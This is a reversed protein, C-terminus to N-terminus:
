ARAEVEYAISLFAAAGRLGAEDTVIVYIPISKMYETMRGKSDFGKRFDGVTLVDLIRPAIGGGIYMGGRAGYFLAADGAFRGLWSAFLEVVKVAVPDNRSLAREVIEPTTCKVAQKGQLETLIQYASALGPGSILMEASIHGFETHMRQLIMFEEDDAVAFSSHGGEGPIACWGARSWTLGAVGLGTGPGVVAKTAQGASLDGGVRQYDNESLRPLAYALAEYDNVFAIYDTATVARMAERTFSWSSNTLSIREGGVPGAVAFGAVLPRFSLTALYSETAAELSSYDSVKLKKFNQIELTKLNALAFRAHTGGIDAVLAIPRPNIM